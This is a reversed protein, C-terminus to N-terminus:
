LSELFRHLADRSLAGLSQYRERASRAEGDHLLIAEEVTDARGDHLFPGHECLGWLPQSRFESGAALFMVIGDGLEPGMDHLLLDTYPHILGLPTPLSPRHCSACGIRGFVEEGRLVAPTTPGRRPAALNEQFFILALLESRSVEPDFVGDFDLIRDRPEAVQAHATKLGFTRELFSREDLATRFATSDTTIGLQNQFAGRNFAEISATQCKYGFRGIANNENAVINPRGSIGDGDADGPDSMALIDEAPVLRFLGVGFLPPANRRAVVDADPPIAPHEVGPAVPNAISGKPGFTPIVLSPLCCETRHTARNAETCDPYAKRVTGDPQTRGVLFFDRYRQASGGVTPEEHCAACASANFHPGLGEERHFRRTFVSRGFDFLARQSPSLGPVPAGFDGAVPADDEASLFSDVLVLVFLGGACALLVFFTRM